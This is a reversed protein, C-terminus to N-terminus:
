WHTGPLSIAQVQLSPLPPIESAIYRIVAAVSGRQHMASFRFNGAGEVAYAM